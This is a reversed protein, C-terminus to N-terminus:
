VREVMQYPCSVLKKRASDSNCFEWPVGEAPANFLRLNAIKSNIVSVTRFLGM